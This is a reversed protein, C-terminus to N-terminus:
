CSDTLKFSKDPVVVRLMDPLGAESFLKTASTSDFRRSIHDALFNEKTGIKRVVPIFKYTVAIFLFERLLSLLAADKPKRHNITDVVAINDCFLTVARGTWDEGWLKSSVILILFEVNLLM